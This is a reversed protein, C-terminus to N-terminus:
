SKYKWNFFKSNILKIIEEKMNYNNKEDEYEFAILYYKDFGFNKKFGRIEKPYVFEVGGSRFQGFIGSFFEISKNVLSSVGDYILGGCASGVASGILTGVFGGIFGGIVPCFANGICAGVAKGMNGGIISGATKYVSKASENLKENINKDKSTWVDALDGALCLADCFSVKTSIGKFKLEKNLIGLGDQAINYGKQALIPVKEIIDQIKPNQFNKIIGCAGLNINKELFFPEYFALFEEGSPFSATIVDKLGIEDM